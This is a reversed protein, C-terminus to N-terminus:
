MSNSKCARLVRLPNIPRGADNQVKLEILTLEALLLLLLGVRIYFIEPFKSEKRVKDRSSHLLELFLDSWFLAIGFFSGYHYIWTLSTNEFLILYMYVFSM